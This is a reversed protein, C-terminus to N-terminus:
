HVIRQVLTQGAFVRHIQLYETELKGRVYDHFTQITFGAHPKIKPIPEIYATIQIRQILDFDKKLERSMQHPM